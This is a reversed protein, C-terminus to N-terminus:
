ETHSWRQKTFPINYELLWAEVADLTQWHGLDALNQLVCLLREDFTEACTASIGEFALTLRRLVEIKHAAHVSLYDDMECGPDAGFPHFYDGEDFVLGGDLGLCATLTHTSSAEKKRVFVVEYM